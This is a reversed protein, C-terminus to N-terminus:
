RLGRLLRTWRQSAVHGKRLIFCEHWAIRRDRVLDGLKKMPPFFAIPFSKL